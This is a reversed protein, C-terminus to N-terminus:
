PNYPDGGERNYVNHRHIAGLLVRSDRILATRPAMQVLGKRDRLPIFWFLASLPMASSAIRPSTDPIITKQAKIAHTPSAPSLLHYKQTLNPDASALRNEVVRDRRLRVGYPELVPEGFPQRYVWRANVCLIMISM